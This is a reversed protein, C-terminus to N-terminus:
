DSRGWLLFQMEVLIRLMHESIIIVAIICEDAHIYRARLQKVLLTIKQQGASGGSTM